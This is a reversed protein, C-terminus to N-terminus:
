LNYKNSMRMRCYQLAHTFKYCICIVESVSVKPLYGPCAIYWQIYYYYYKNRIYGMVYLIEIRKVFIYLMFICSPRKLCFLAFIACLYYLVYLICSTVMTFIWLDIYAVLCPHPRIIFIDYQTRWTMQLQHKDTTSHTHQHISQEIALKNIFWRQHFATMNVSQNDIQPNLFTQIVLKAETTISGECKHIM